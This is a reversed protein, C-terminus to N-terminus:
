DFGARGEAWSVVQGPATAVVYLHSLELVLDLIRDILGPDEDQAPLHKDPHVVTGEKLVVEIAQACKGPVQQRDAEAPHQDAQPDQEGGRRIVGDHFLVADAIPEV